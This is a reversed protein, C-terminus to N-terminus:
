LCHADTKKGEQVAVVSRKDSQPLGRVVEVGHNFMKKKDVITM